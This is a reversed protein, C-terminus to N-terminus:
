RCKTAYCSWQADACSCVEVCVDECGLGEFGCPGAISSLGTALDLLSECAACGAEPPQAGDPLDCIRVPWDTGADTGADEPEADMAVILVGEPSDDSADATPARVAGGCGLAGCAIALTLANGSRRV